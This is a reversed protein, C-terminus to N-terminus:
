FCAQLVVSSGAGRVAGLGALAYTKAPATMAKGLYGRIDNAIFPRAAGAMSSLAVYRWDISSARCQKLRNRVRQLQAKAGAYKSQAGLSVQTFYWELYGFRACTSAGDENAPYCTGLPDTGNIPDNLLYAYLNPGDVDDLPDTQGFRGIASYYDRAKYYWQGAQPLSAQGTYGFSGVNAQQPIGFEDYRNIGVLTGASDTAAIISGREDSSLFRRTTTGSGEYWVIPDDTGTGHIYRRLVANSGDYEAIRDVGDYGLRATSGAIVQHLRMQPDYSLATAGAGATLLNESSYTFTDSGIATINGRSDHSVTKAGYNTIQNLGNVTWSDNQNTHGTWAYTDGTRVTSTIQFAPSYAFTVSLDNTSGSLNNTLSAIRFAGDFGDLRTSDLAVATLSAAFHTPGGSLPNAIQGM